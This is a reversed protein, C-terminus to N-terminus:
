PPLPRPVRGRKKPPEPRSTSTDSGPTITGTPSPPIPAIPTPPPITVPTPPIPTADPDGGPQKGGTTDPPEGKRQDQKEDTKNENEPKKKVWLSVAQLNSKFKESFSPGERFQNYADWGVWVLSSVIAFPFLLRFKGLTLLILAALIATLRLWFGMTGRVYGFLLMLLLAIWFSYILGQWRYRSVPFLLAVLALWSVGGWFVFGITHTFGLVLPVLGVLISLILGWWGYHKINNWRLGNRIDIWITQLHNKVEIGRAKIWDKLSM